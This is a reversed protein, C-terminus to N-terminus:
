GAVREIVWFLALLAILVSSGRVFARYGRTRAAWALPGMVLAVFALQALEIGVNFCVLALVTQARPLGLEMLVSSFGFGHILGFGGAIWPMPGRQEPRWVNLLAVLVISAAIAVEVPQAPLVVIGLAALVLTVSHGLTFATVLWVVDALAKKTGPALLGTNPPPPTSARAKSDPPSPVRIWFGAALVLSLLFLVHDYGFAFHLVGEWLFVGAIRGAGAPVGLEVRQRGHRLITAEDGSAFALRVIAEHQVDDPFVAGDELVLAGDAGACRYDVDTRLFMTGDRDVAEFTGITPECRAQGRTVVITREIWLRLADGRSLLAEVDPEAGLGLEMSADIAEVELEVTAGTPVVEVRLYKRSGLHASAVSSTVHLAAAALAGIVVLSRIAVLAHVASGPPLFRM